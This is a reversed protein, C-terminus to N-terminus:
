GKLEIVEQETVGFAEAAEAVTCGNLLSRLIWIDRRSRETEEQLQKQLQRQQEQLQRQKEREEEVAQKIAEQKEREIIMGVKTMQIWRRVNKSFEEDIIKDAFTVLGSVAFIQKEREELEQALSVCKRLLIRQEERNEVTLPLIILEMLEDDELNRESEAKKSIKQFVEETHIGSLYGPEIQLRLSGIDLVTKVHKVNSTYIVIMRIKPFRIGADYLRKLTRAIYNIYKIKDKSRSGSEYDILAYSGDEMQFLNDMRLENVEIAPLNTPLVKTIRSSSIGYVRLSKERLGEAFIKSAIDKNQYSIDPSSGSEEPGDSVSVLETLDGSEEPEAQKASADVPVNKKQRTRKM